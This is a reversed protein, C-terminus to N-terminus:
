YQMETCPKVIQRRLCLGSVGEVWSKDPKREVTNEATCSWLSHMTQFNEVKFIDSTTIIIYFICLIFFFPVVNWYFLAKCQRCCYALGNDHEITQPITLTCDIDPAQLQPIQSDVDTTYRWQTHAHAHTHTLTYSCKWYNSSLEWHERLANNCKTCLQECEVKITACSLYVVKWHMTHQKFKITVYM